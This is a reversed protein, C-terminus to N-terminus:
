YKWLVELDVVSVFFALIPYTCSEVVRCAARRDNVSVVVTLLLSVDVDHDNAVDVGALRGGGTTLM